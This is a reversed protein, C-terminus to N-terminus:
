VEEELIVKRASKIGNQAKHLEAMSRIMCNEFGREILDDYDFDPWEPSALGPVTQHEHKGIDTNSKIQLWQKRALKIIDQWGNFWSKSYGPFPYTVPILFIGGDEHRIAPYLKALTLGTISVDNAFDFDVLYWRRNINIMNADVGAEVGKPAVQFVGRPVCVRVESGVQLDVSPQFYRSMDNKIKM